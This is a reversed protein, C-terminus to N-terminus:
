VQSPPQRPPVAESGSTGASAVEAASRLDAPPSQREGHRMDMPSPPLSRGHTPPTLVLLPCQERHGHHQQNGTAHRPQQIRVHRRAHQPDCPCDQAQDERDAPHHSWGAATLEADIDDRDEGQGAGQHHVLREGPRHDRHHQGAPLQQLGPRCGPRPPLQAQQDLPGRPGGAAARVTRTTSTGTSSTTTPSRSSTPVPSITGTSPRSSTGPWGPRTRASRRVAAPRGSLRRRRGCRRPSRPGGM